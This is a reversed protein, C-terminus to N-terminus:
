AMPPRPDPAPAGASTSASERRRVSVDGAIVREVSGDAHEVLLAGDDDIGRALGPRRLGCADILDIPQGALVDLARWAPLSEALGREPFCRLVGVIAEGLSRALAVRDPRTDPAFLAGVRQGTDAAEIAPSPQLNLGVGAVIRQIVGSQRAEILIGGAKAMGDVTDVYLDNPWKLRPRAGHDALVRAIVVGVALPLGILNAGDCGREIVVSVALSHAADSLWPRGNRGRGLEQVDAFLITAPGPCEGFPRRMLETSTSDTRALHEFRPPENM